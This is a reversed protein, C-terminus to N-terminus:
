QHASYAQERAEQLRQRLYHDRSMGEPIRQLTQVEDVIRQEEIKYRQFQPSTAPQQAARAASLAQYRATLATAQRTQTQEDAGSAQILALQLLMAESIALEGRAEYRDIQRALASLQAQRESFSLTSASAIFDRYHTHFRLRQEQTAIIAASPKPRDKYPTSPLQGPPPKSPSATPTQAPIAPTPTDPQRWTLALVAIALGAGLLWATSPRHM